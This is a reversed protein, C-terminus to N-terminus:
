YWRAHLPVVRRAQRIQTPHDQRRERDYASNTNYAGGHTFTKGNSGMGLGCNSHAEGSQDSTMQDVPKQSLIRKGEFTGGNALSAYGAKDLSLVGERDAALTVVGPAIRKEVFSQLAPAFVGPADARHSLSALGVIFTISLLASRKM